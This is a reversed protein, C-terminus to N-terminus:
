RQRGWGGITSWPDAAGIWASGGDSAPEAPGGV